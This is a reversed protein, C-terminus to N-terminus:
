FGYDIADDFKTSDCGKDLISRDSLAGGRLQEAGDLAGSGSDGNGRLHRSDGSGEGRRRGRHYDRWRRTSSGGAAAMRRSTSGGSCQQDDGDSGGEDDARGCLPVFLLAPTADDGMM